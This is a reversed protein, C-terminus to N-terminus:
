IERKNFKMLNFFGTQKKEILKYLRENGNDISESTIKYGEEKLDNIRAAGRPIRMEYFEFSRVGRSGRERLLKLVREKQTM